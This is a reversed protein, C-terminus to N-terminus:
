RLLSMANIERYSSTYLECYYIGSELYNGSNDRGEWVTQYSGPSLVEDILVCVVRGTADIIRLTVHDSESVDYKITTTEKFPNPSNQQLYSGQTETQNISNPPNQDVVAVLASYKPSTFVVNGDVISGRYGYTVKINEPNAFSNSSTLTPATIKHIYANGATFSDDIDLTIQVDDASTNVLKFYLESSDASLTSVANFNNYTEVTEVYNPAYHDRWLKMVVYNPAPFWESNNFNVLANNWSSGASSHRLFLAPGGIKFYEGQREFANLMGAAYLGNRWDIPSWVNWESMYIKIDPNASSAIRNSLQALFNEYSIVGSRYNGVDEYHHTSVYDIIDACQNLLNTNWTQDFSGSGCAIIKVDPYKAKMAPAFEKVKDTYATIGASWTENDIEWYMVNYPERHGNAARVAGWTTTDPDGNCYEMWDLADQLYQEPQLKFPIQVGCTADLVGTNVVILPEIGLNECMRLFEDTGYSNADKDNWIDMPYTVRDHQPGIGDKWYYASVYCGGPWRMIPPRLDEVAELLDPRFGGNDIADQGMLSVQDLYITGTDNLVIQLVGNTTTMGPNMEFTYEQWDVGPAAFDEQVLVDTGDLMRVKLGGPSEGKAWFSGQYNQDIFNFADQQIGAEVSQVNEIRASFESNLSATDRFIESDGAKDWNSFLVEQDAAPDPLGIFLTDGSPIETVLIDTFKSSTNWTGIGAQGSLHAAADTFDFISAEDIWIQFHNGECRIRIDYWVGTTVSGSATLGNFVSWRSGPNGKEIAHQTNNWGAINCWYFSEGNARFLILFGESGDIKQAKLTIEYDGWDTDGFLLRVNESLASQVIVTDDITWLGGAGGVREFSRNWVLDGWLGGNVSNYIHELFQGYVKEDVNHLINETNITYTNQAKVLVTTNIFCLFILAISLRYLLNRMM